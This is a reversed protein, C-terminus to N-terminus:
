EGENNDFLIFYGMHEWKAYLTVDKDPMVFTDTDGYEVNGDPANSWGVFQHRSYTFTNEALNFEEKYRHTETKSITTLNNAVFTLTHEKIEEGGCASLPLISLMLIFSFLRKM